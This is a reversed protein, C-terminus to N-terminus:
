PKTIQVLLSGSKSNQVQASNSPYSRILNEGRTEITGTATGDRFEGSTHSQLLFGRERYLSHFNGNEPEGTAEWSLDVKFTLRWGDLDWGEATAVLRAATLDRSFTFQFEETMGSAGLLVQGTEMVFRFVSVSVFRSPEPGGPQPPSLYTSDNVTASVFTWVGAEQYSYEAFAGAGVIRTREMYISNEANVPAPASFLAVFLVVLLLSLRKM